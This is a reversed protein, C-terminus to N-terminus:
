EGPKGERAPYDKLRDVAAHAEGAAGGNSDRWVGCAAAEVVAGSSADPLRPADKAIRDGLVSVVEAEIL